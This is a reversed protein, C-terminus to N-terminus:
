CYAMEHAVEINLKTLKGKDKKVNDHLGVIRNHWLLKKLYILVM